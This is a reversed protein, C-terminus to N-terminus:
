ETVTPEYETVEAGIVGALSDAYKLSFDFETEQTGGAQGWRYGWDDGNNVVGFAELAAGTKFLGTATWVLKYHVGDSVYIKGNGTSSEYQMVLYLGGQTIAEGMAGYTYGQWSATQNFLLAYLDEDANHWKAKDNDGSESSKDSGFGFEGKEWTHWNLTVFHTEGGIKMSIGFHMENTGDAYNIFNEGYKIKLAVYADGTTPEALKVETTEKAIHHWKFDGTAPDIEATGTYLGSLDLEEMGGTLTVTGKVTAGFLECTANWEGLKVDTLTVEGNAVTLTVDAEGDKKLTITKGNYAKGVTVTGTFKDSAFVVNVTYELKNLNEITFNGSQELIVPAGNDVTVTAIKNEPVTITVTATEGYEYVSKDATVEAGDVDEKNDTINLTSKWETVTGGVAANMTAGYALTFTFERDIGTNWGNGAWKTDEQGDAVGFATLKGNADFMGEETYVLIYTQGDSLYVNVDGTAAKYELVFYVGGDIIAGGYTGFGWGKERDDWGQFKPYFLHNWLEDRGRYNVEGMDKDQGETQWNKKDSTFGINTREWTRWNYMIVHEVGNVTMAIGFDMEDQKSSWTLFDAATAVKLAVYQDGSVEEALGFKVTKHSQRYWKFAGTAPDIEATGTYLGSLDLEEMGDFLTVTGKVTAGLLECTADWEGLKVNNFTVEGNAVTLTVDAEGDKKLTITKGNYAKGVTVTGNVKTNIFEVDVTHTYGAKFTVEGSQELIRSDGDITVIAAKDAPITVNIKVTEEVKYSAKELAAAAGAVESANTTFTIESAPTETEGSIDFNLEKGTNDGFDEAVLMVRASQTAYAAPLTLEKTWDEITLTLKENERVLRYDFGNEVLEAFKAYDWTYLEAGHRLDDNGFCTRWEPHKVIASDKKFWADIRVEKGDDFKLGVSYLSNEEDTTKYADSPEFKASADVNYYKDATVLKDETKGASKFTVKGDNANSYDIFALNNNSFVGYQLAVVGDKGVKKVVGKQVEINETYDIYGSGSVVLQYTKGVELNEVTFKGDGALTLAKDDLKATVGAIDNIYKGFKYLKVAGTVSGVQRGCACEGDTYSHSARSGAEELNDDPCVKWHEADSSKWKTYAHTHPKEYGCECKGNTGFEHDAVSKEDKANDEPCVLWHQAENNDWKTYSHEHEGGCGVLAGAVPVCLATLATLVAFVKKKRM